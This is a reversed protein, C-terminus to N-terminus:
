PSIGVAEINGDIIPLLGWLDSICLCDLPRDRTWMAAAVLAQGSRDLLVPILGAARAGVVDYDYLDGVHLTEGPAVGLSRVAQQFIGPNPKAVGVEASSIIVAFVDRLGLRELLNSLGPDWNSVVALPLGRRRLTDLIEPVEPYSKWGGMRRPFEATIVAARHDLDETISLAELLVRNGEVWFAEPSTLYLDRHATFWPESREYAGFTQEPTVDVGFERCFEAFIVWPPPDMHLLTGGVDFCVAGIHATKARM